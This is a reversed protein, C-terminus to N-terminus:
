DDLTAPSDEDEPTEAEMLDVMRALLEIVLDLKESLRM